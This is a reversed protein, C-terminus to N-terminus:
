VNTSPTDIGAAAAAVAADSAERSATPGKFSKTNMPNFAFKVARYSNATFLPKETSMTGTPRVTSNRRRSCLVVAVADAASCGCRCVCVCLLVQVYELVNLKAFSVNRQMVRGPLEMYPRGSEVDPKQDRSAKVVPGMARMPNQVVVDDKVLKVSNVVDARTSRFFQVLFCVILAFVALMAMVSFANSAQASTKKAVYMAGVFNAVSVIWTVSLAIIKVPQKWERRASYPEMKIVCTINAAILLTTVLLVVGELKMSTSAVPPILVLLLSLIFVSVLNMHVFYFRAPKFDQAIFTGWSSLFEPTVSSLVNRRRYLVFFTVLPFGIVHVLLLLWGLAGVRTHPGTYCKFMANYSLVMDGNADTVCYIMNLSANCILPYLLILAGFGLRRLVCLLGKFKKKPLPMAFLVGVVVVVVLAVLFEMYQQAFPYDGYCLPHTVATTDLELISLTNFVTRVAPPAATLRKGVQVVTHWTIMTWMVVDRGRFIAFSMKLDRGRSALRVIGVVGCFCALLGVIFLIITLAQTAKSPPCKLCEGLEPFYGKDCSSCM